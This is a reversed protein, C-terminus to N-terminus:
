FKPWRSRFKKIFFRDKYGADPQILDPGALQLLNCFGPMIQIASAGPGQSPIHGCGDAGFNGTGVFLDYGNDAVISKL